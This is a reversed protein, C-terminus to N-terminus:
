PQCTSIVEEFGSRDANNIYSVDPLYVYDTGFYENFIYRFINVNSSPLAGGQGGQPLYMALLNNHSTSGWYYGHDGMLIIVPPRDSQAILADVIPLMRGNIFQVQDAYGEKFYDFNLPDGGEGSYFGEEAQLSGDPKFILPEHPVLIHAFVFKREAIAPLTPLRDLTFNVQRVHPTYPNNVVRDVQRTAALQIELLADLYTSNMVLSEFPNLVGLLPNSEEASMFEDVGWWDTFVFNTEFAYLKYGLAKFDGRVRNQRILNPLEVMEADESYADIGLTPLYDMNFTSAMSMDTFNYNSRSCEAVQFGRERLANLFSSNDYGLDALMQDARAYGDLVIVYVDPLQSLDVTQTQAAPEPSKGAAAMRIQYWGIQLLSFIVLAAGAINLIRGPPSFDGKRRLIWWTGALMLLLYPLALYRNRGLVFSGMQVGALLRLLHGYTFFILLLFTLLVAAKQVNRLIWVLLGFVIGAALLSIVLPRFVVWGYVQDINLAFLYLIPYAAFLFPHLPLARLTRIM